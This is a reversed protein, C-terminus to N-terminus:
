TGHMQSADSNPYLISLSRVKPNKNVSLVVDCERVAGHHALKSLINGIRKNIYDVLSSTLEINHGNVIILPQQTTASDDDSSSSSSIPTTTTTTGEENSSQTTALTFHRQPPLFSSLLPRTATIVVSPQLTFGTIVTITTTSLLVVLTSILVSLRMMTMQDSHYIKYYIHTFSRRTRNQPTATQLRGFFFSKVLKIRQSSWIYRKVKSTRKTPIKIKFVTSCQYSM